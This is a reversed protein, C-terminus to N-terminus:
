SGPACEPEPLRGRVALPEGAPMRLSPGEDLGLVVALGGTAQRESRVSRVAHWAGWMRVAQGPQVAIAAIERTTPAPVLGPAKLESWVTKGIGGLRESM